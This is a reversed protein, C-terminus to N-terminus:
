LNRLLTVSQVITDFLAEQSVHGAIRPHPCGVLVLEVFDIELAQAFVCLKEVSDLGSGSGESRSYSSEEMGVLLAVQAQTYGKRTRYRRLLEGRM